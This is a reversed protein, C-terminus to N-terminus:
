SPTPTSCRCPRGHHRRLARLRRVGISCGSGIRIYDSKFVGEELSHGQLTSGRQPECLRRDRDADERSVSRRRRVGQPRGERGAPPLDREQLAHGQVAVAAAVRLVELAARPVLLVPRLDVRGAAAAAPLGPEGARAARLVPDVGAVAFAGAVFLSALGHRPYLLSRPTSPSCRRRLRVGLQGAPVAGGHRHQPREEKLRERRAEDDLSTNFNRDREVARPIEFCPSGLLGVGERVAGDIPIMVKTGLLCDTGTKGDAPFFINNGLYNRDGIKVQGLKFSSSSMQANMMSLGDSVMTSSGIDCLFPNDHKQNTGFNSGTQEIKNLNWGILTLYHVIASSDGFLLNYIRSNSAGAVIGHSGTTSDTCCTPRRRSCCGTSCGRCWAVGVLGTVLAGVLLVLSVVLALPLLVAGMVGYDLETGGMYRVVFPYWYNLIM